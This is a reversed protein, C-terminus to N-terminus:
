YGGPTARDLSSPQPNFRLWVEIQAVAGILYAQDQGHTLTSAVDLLYGWDKNTLLSSGIQKLTEKSIHQPLYVLRLYEDLAQYPYRPLCSLASPPTPPNLVAASLVDVAVALLNNTFPDTSQFKFSTLPGAEPM